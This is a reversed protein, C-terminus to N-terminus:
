FVLDYGLTLLTPNGYHVGGNFNPGNQDIWRDLQVKIDSTDSLAYSLSLAVVSWGEATSPDISLPDILAPNANEAQLNMTYQNYTLMPLFKGVRYGVGLLFSYYEEGVDRRDMYLYENRVVWQQYDVSFSLSYIKQKVPSSYDYPPPVTPDEYRDQFDTQIYALRTEFWDLALTLDAGLINSWRSDTRTNKGNYIKWYGNDDRTEDGAFVELTSAWSGWQSQYRLNAGNYNVVEWGYQGPPLHLWPYSFGVDQTESYYFLPLRKRGLQLSVTENFSYSGYAWELGMEENRIGRSVAQATLSFQPNFIVSGQLGLRSDPRVSWENNEYVGGQGYDAVFMPAHYGNFDQEADGGVIKGAAVTLFGSGSFKVRSEDDQAQLLLPFFLLQAALLSLLTRKM